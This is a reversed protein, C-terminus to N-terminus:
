GSAPRPWDTEFVYELGDIEDMQEGVRLFGLAATLNLSPENDPSISAVFRTIGHARHAWDFLAKVSESAYGRRRYPPDVSYGVELRNEKDPPGHFGISGVVRQSGGDETLIMARGLWPHITPDVVLQALRFKLFNELEDAMWMPVDAGMERTAADIDHRALAQMFPVSM